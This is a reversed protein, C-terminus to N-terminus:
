DERFVESFDGMIEETSRSQEQFMPEEVYDAEVFGLPKPESKIAPAKSARRDYAENNRVQFKVAYVARGKKKTEMEIFLDTKENIEKIATKLIYRNFDAFTPYKDSSGTIIQKLDDILYPPTGYRFGSKDNPRNAAVVEYLALSHKKKILRMAGIELLSFLNKKDAIHAQLVPHFDYFFIGDKMQTYSFFNVRKFEGEKDGVWQIITKQLKFLQEDLYFFDKKVYGMVRCLEDIPISRFEGKRPKPSNYFHKLVVAYAMRQVLSLDNSVEITSRPKALDM